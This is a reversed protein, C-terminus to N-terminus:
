YWGLNEVQKLGSALGSLINFYVQLVFFFFLSDERGSRNKGGVPKTLLLIVFFSVLHVPTTSWVTWKRDVSATKFCLGGRLQNKVISTSVYKQWEKIIEFLKQRKILSVHMTNWSNLYSNVDRPRMLWWTTFSFPPTCTNSWANKGEACFVSIHDTVSWSAKNGVFSNSTGVPFCSLPNRGHGRRLVGCRM